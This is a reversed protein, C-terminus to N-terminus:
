LGLDAVPVDIPGSVKQAAALLRDKSAGGLYGDILRHYNSILGEVKESLRMYEFGKTHLGKQQMPLNSYDQKPIPPWRPDDHPMPTPTKIPPPEQGPPFRTLSWLEFLCTEPGLPRIRYSSASSFTPLLFFHPFCFNVSENYHQRDVENLDAVDMGAKRNWDVIADNLRRRWEMNAQAPDAPLDINRLGEAVRIDKEHTMGAMGENLIRMFHINLDIVQRPDVSDMKPPNAYTTYYRSMRSASDPSAYTAGRGRPVGPPLLQPHTALVHYGEMFAEMALKWNVPLHAALWWEVRLTDVHWADHMDAFPKISERLPPADDDLNIFACGGWTEVRCQRLGLDDPDLNRKNFLEEGFVFTCQGEINWAWGHFPCVFGGPRCGRDKALQVGRHRCHNHYAKVTNDDVRTVIISHGVNEYVVYDGRKPIEELRCAMQWVHPWLKECELDFFAQDYYRRAPIRDPQTIAFPVKSQSAM